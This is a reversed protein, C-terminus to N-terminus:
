VYHDIVSKLYNIILLHSNKQEFDNFLITRIAFVMFFKHM